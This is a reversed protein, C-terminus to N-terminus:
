RRCRSDCAAREGSEPVPRRLSRRGAGDSWRGSGGALDVRRLEPDAHLFQGPRHDAGRGPHADPASASHASGPRAGRQAGRVVSRRRAPPQAAGQRVSGGAGEVRVGPSGGDEVGPIAPLFVRIERDGSLYPEQAKALAPLAGALRDIWDGASFEGPTMPAGFAAGGGQPGTPKRRIFGRKGPGKRM